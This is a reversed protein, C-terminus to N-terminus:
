SKEAAKLGKQKKGAALRWVHDVVHSLSSAKGGGSRDRRRRPKGDGGEGEGVGRGDGRGGMSVLDHFVVRGGLLRDV